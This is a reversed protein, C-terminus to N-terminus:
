MIYYLQFRKFDGRPHGTPKFDNWPSMFRSSTVRPHCSDTTVLKLLKADYRSVSMPDNDVRPHSSASENWGWPSMFRSSTVKPHCSVTFGSIASLIACGTSSSM